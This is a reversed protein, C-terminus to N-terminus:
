PLPATPPPPRGNLSCPRTACAAAGPGAVDHEAVRIGERPWGDSTPGSATAEEPLAEVMHYESMRGDDSLRILIGAFNHLSKGKREARIEVMFLVLDPNLEHVQTVSARFDDAMAAFDPFRRSLAESLEVLDTGGAANTIYARVAPDFSAAITGMDSTEMAAVFRHVFASPSVRDM